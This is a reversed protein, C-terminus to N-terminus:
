CAEAPLLNRHVIVEIVQFGAVISEPLDLSLCAKEVEGCAEGLDALGYLPASGRIRHCIERVSQYESREMALRLHHIQELLGDLYKQKTSESIGMFKDKVTGM